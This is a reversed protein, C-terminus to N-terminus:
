IPGASKVLTSDYYYSGIQSKKLEGMTTKRVIVANKM